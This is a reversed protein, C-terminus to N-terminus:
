FFRREQKRYCVDKGLRYEKGFEIRSSLFYLRKIKVLLLLCDWINGHNKTMPVQLYSCIAEKLDSAMNHSFCISSKQFNIMQRSAREYAQLCERVKVCEQM